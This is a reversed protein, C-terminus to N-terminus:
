SSNRRRGASHSESIEGSGSYIGMKKNRYFVPIQTERNFKLGFKNFAEVTAKQYIIEKLGPGFNKRVEFAAGQIQYSLEKYLLKEHINTNM